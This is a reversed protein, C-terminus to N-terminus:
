GQDEFRDCGLVGVGVGHANRAVEANLRETAPMLHSSDDRDRLFGCRFPPCPVHGSDRRFSQNLSFVDSNAPSSISVAHAHIHCYKQHYLDCWIPCIAERLDKSKHVHMKIWPDCAVHGSSHSAGKQLLSHYDYPGRPNGGFPIHPSAYIRSAWTDLPEDLEACAPAGCAKAIVRYPSM